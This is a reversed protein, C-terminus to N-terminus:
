RLSSKLSLFKGLVSHPLLKRDCLLLHTDSVPCLLELACNMSRLVEGCAFLGLKQASMAADKHWKSNLSSRTWKPMINHGKM